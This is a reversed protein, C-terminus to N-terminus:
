HHTKDMKSQTQRINKHRRSSKCHGQYMGSSAGSSVKDVMRDKEGEPARQAKLSMRRTLLPLYPIRVRYWLVLHGEPSTVWLRAQSSTLAVRTEDPFRDISLLALFDSVLRIDPRLLILEERLCLHSQLLNALM